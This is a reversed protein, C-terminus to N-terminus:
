RQLILFSEAKAGLDDCDEDDFAIVGVEDGIEMLGIFDQAAIKASEMYTKGTLTDRHSMSGSRDIVHVVSINEAPSTAGYQLSLVESAPDDPNYVTVVLLNDYENDNFTPVPSGGLEQIIGALTENEGAVVVVRDAHNIMVDQILGQINDSDYSNIQYPEFGVSIALPEVLDRTPSAYIPAICTGSDLCPEIAKQAVHALKEARQGTDGSEADHRVLLFTTMECSTKVIDPGTQEGYQLNIINTSGDIDGPYHTVIYLNDYNTHSINESIINAGLEQAIILVNNSHGVVLVVEGEDTSLIQDALEDEDSFDYKIPELGLLHSMPQVTDLTRQTDTSYIVTVGAKRAVHTLEKARVWGELSLYDYDDARDAHRVLLVTTVNNEGFVSTSCLILALALLYILCVKFWIVSNNM